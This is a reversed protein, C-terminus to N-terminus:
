KTLLAELKDKMQLHESKELEDDTVAIEKKLFQILDIIFSVPVVVESEVDLPGSPEIEIEQPQYDDDSNSEERYVATYAEELTNYKEQM